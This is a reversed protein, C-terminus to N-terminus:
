PSTKCQTARPTEYSSANSHMLIGIPSLRYKRCDQAQRLFGKSLSLAFPTKQVISQADTNTASIARSRAPPASQGAPGILSPRPGERLAHCWPTDGLVTPPRRLSTLCSPAACGPGPSMLPTPQGGDKAAGVSRACSVNRQQM